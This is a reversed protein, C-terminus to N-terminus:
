FSVTAIYTLTSTYVGPAQGPPVNVLYSVTFVKYDTSTSSSTMTGNKLVFQNPSNFDPEVSSTGPGIPDQGVVPASNARLNIGFQSTGPASAAPVALSNITNTGSSMTGGAISTVVGTFDNTAAAFQSTATNANLASLEGLNLYNGGSTSCNLSVSLAVCFSLFPPVFADVGLSGSTSFAVSGNDTYAGSSDTSAYTTIRVFVTQNVATPNAVNGFSYSVAQPSAPVPARTLIVTTATSSPHISFGNEGAQSDLSASSLSLGAPVTCSDGVLPSNSCYEFKISGLNASSVINFSFGHRTNAGPLSTEVAMSRVTLTAARVHLTMNILAPVVILLALMSAYAKQNKLLRVTM